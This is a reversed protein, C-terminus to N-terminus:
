SMSMPGFRKDCADPTGRRRYGVLSGVYMSSRCINAIYYWLQGSVNSKRGQSWRTKASGNAKSPYTRKQNTLKGIVFLLEVRDTKDLAMGM